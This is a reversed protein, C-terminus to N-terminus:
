ELSLSRSCIQCLERFHYFCLFIDVNAGFLDGRSHFIISTSLLFLALSNTQLFFSLFLSLACNLLINLYVCSPLFVVRTWAWLALSSLQEIKM